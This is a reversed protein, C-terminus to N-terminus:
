ELLPMGNDGQLRSAIRYPLLLRQDDDFPIEIRDRQMLGIRWTAAVNPVAKVASLM